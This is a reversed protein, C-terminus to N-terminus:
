HVTTTTGVTIPLIISAHPPAGLETLAQDRQTTALAIALAYRARATSRDGANRAHRLAVILQTKATLVAQHFARDIVLVKQNYIQLPTETGTGAQAATPVVLAPAVVALSLGLAASVIARVVRTRM